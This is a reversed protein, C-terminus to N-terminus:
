KEMVGKVLTKSQGPFFALILFIILALILIINIIIGNVNEKVNGFIDGTFINDTTGSPTLIDSLFQSIQNGIGVGKFDLPNINKGSELVEWHLHNGTAYGTHGIEGLLDGPNVRQGTKVNISNLHGFRQEIEGTQLIVLNGYDGKEGAFTIIGMVNSLLKTGLNAGIDIGSHFKEQGSRPDIRNGYGSTIKGEIPLDM